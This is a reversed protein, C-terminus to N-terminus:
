EGARFTGYSLSFYQGEELTVTVPEESWDQELISDYDMGADSRTEYHLDYDENPSLTYTGAPLDAGIRYMGASYVGNEPAPIVANKAPTFPEDADLYTGEEALFFGFNDFYGSDLQNNSMNRSSSYTDVFASYNEDTRIFYEGAPIDTGIRYMGASYWGNEPEPLKAQSALEAKGGRIRVYDGEEPTYFYRTGGSFIDRIDSDSTCSYFITVSLSEEDATFFLEEVPLDRGVLYMGEGYWGDEPQYLPANEIPTIRAGSLEVTEKETLELYGFNTYSLYSSDTGLFSSSIQVSAWGDEAEVYYLGPDLDKGVRYTGSSYWGDSSLTGAPPRTTTRVVIFLGVIVIVIVALVALVGLFKRGASPPRYANVPSEPSSPADESLQQWGSPTSSSREPAPEPASTNSLGSWGSSSEPPEPQASPSDSSAAPAPAGCHECFRDTVESGCFPCKM